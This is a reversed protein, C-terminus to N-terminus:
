AYPNRVARSIAAKTAEDIDEEPLGLLGNALGRTAGYDGCGDDYFIRTYMWRAFAARDGKQMAELATRFREEAPEKIITWDSEQDGTVRFVSDLMDRQSVTFSSIFVNRDRFHDLCRETDGGEAHVPLSLLSAVARGVQPWTSTNMKVQGDDFFTATKSAFDFGYADKIGLSWEYWFGCTVALYSSKGLTRIEGHAAALKAFIFSDKVIGENTTDPAWENPLIWPVGAEGAAHILKSQTDPPAETGLTIVLADQGRLAAVITSPDDYNIKAVEIGSPLESASGERTIATVAHKGAKLLEQVMSSGSRGAAGVIAVRTIHNSPM